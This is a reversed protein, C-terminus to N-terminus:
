VHARGIEIIDVNLFRGLEKVDATKRWTSALVVNLNLSSCVNTVLGVAIPDLYQKWSEPKTSNAYQGLAIASRVSQLVEDIDLFLVNLKSM